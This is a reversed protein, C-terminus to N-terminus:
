ITCERSRPAALFFFSAIYIPAALVLGIIPLVTVGILSFGMGIFLLCIAVGLHSIREFQCDIKRM